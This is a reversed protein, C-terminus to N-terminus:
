GQNKDVELNLLAICVMVSITEGFRINEQNEEGENV